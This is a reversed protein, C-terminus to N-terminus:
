LGLEKALRELIAQENEPIVPEDVPMAPDDGFVIEQPASTTVVPTKPVTMTVCVQVREGSETSWFYAKKNDADMGAFDSGLATKFRELLNQKAITGKAM